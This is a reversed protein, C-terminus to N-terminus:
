YSILVVVNQYWYWFEQKCMELSVRGSLSNDHDHCVPLFCLEQKVTHTVRCVLMKVCWILHYLVTLRFWLRTEQEWYLAVRQLLLLKIVYSSQIPEPGEETQIHQVSNATLAHQCFLKSGSYNPLVPILKAEEVSDRSSWGQYYRWAM